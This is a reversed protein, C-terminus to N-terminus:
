TSEESLRPSSRGHTQEEGQNSLYVMWIIWLAFAALLPAYWWLGALLSRYPLRPDISLSILIASLWFPNPKFVSRAIYYAAPLLLIFSYLKFRPMVLAYALCGTYILYVLSIRNRRYLRLLYRFTIVTVALAILAFAAHAALSIMSESFGMRKLGAFLFKFLTLTSPNGRTGDEEHATAATLFHRLGEPSMLYNLTLMAAFGLCSIGFYIWKRGERTFLILALFAAPTWKFFASALVLLCFWVLKRSLLCAFGSWLLVQEIISVNGARIDLSLAAGFALTFFLTLLWVPEEKLFHRRWVAFLAGLLVLKLLLWVEYAIAIPMLAFIRFLYLCLPPYLYPHIEDSHGAAKLLSVDYPDLGAAQTQAAYYYTKFDWQYIGQRVAVEGVIVIVILLPVLRLAIQLLRERSQM